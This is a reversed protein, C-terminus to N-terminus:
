NITVPIAGSILHWNAAPPTTTKCVTSNDTCVAMHLDYSGSVPIEIHDRWEYETGASIKDADSDGNFFRFIYPNAYVGWAGFKQDDTGQNQIRLNVFISENVAYEAVCSSGATCKKEASFYTGTIPSGDPTIPSIRSESITVPIADSLIFWNTGPAKSALCKAATDLCIGMQLHHIGPNIITISDRWSYETNGGIKDAERDGNFVYLFNPYLNTHVGWAGFSIESSSSNAIRMNVFVPDGILHRPGTIGAVFETEISFTKGSIDTNANALLAESTATPEALATATIVPTATHTPIATAPAQVIPIEAIDTQVKSWLSSVWVRNRAGYTIQYWLGDASKGILPAIYGSPESGLIEYEAGPGARLYVGDTLQLTAGGAAVQDALPTSTPDAPQIAILTPVPTDTNTLDTLVETPEETSSPSVKATTQTPPLETPATTQQSDSNLENLAYRIASVGGTALGIILVTVLVTKNPIASPRKTTM